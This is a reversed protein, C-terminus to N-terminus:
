QRTECKPKRCFEGAAMLVRAWHRRESPIGGGEAGIVSVRSGMKACQVSVECDCCPCSRTACRVKLQGAAEEVVEVTTGPTSHPDLRLLASYAKIVKVVVEDRHLLGPQRTFPVDPPWYFVDRSSLPHGTAEAGIGGGSSGGDVGAPSECGILQHCSCKGSQVEM